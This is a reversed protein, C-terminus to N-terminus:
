GGVVISDVEEVLKVAESLGRLYGVQERYGAYDTAGGNSVHEVIQRARENVKEEFLVAWRTHM